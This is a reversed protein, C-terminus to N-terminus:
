QASHGTAAVDEEDSEEENDEGGPFTIQWRDILDKIADSVWTGSNGEAIDKTGYTHIACIFVRGDPLIKLVPSGSHGGYTNIMYFLQRETLRFGNGRMEYMDHGNLLILESKDLDPGTRHMLAPYGIIRLLQDELAGKEFVKYPLFGTTAGLPADLVILGIDYGKYEPDPKQVYGPHVVYSVAEAEHFIKDGSRGPYIRVTTPGTQYKRFFLNHGATLVHWDGIMVGSGLFTRLVEGDEDCLDMELKVIKPYFGEQTDIIKEHPADIVYAETLLDGTEEDSSRSHVHGQAHSSSVLLVQRVTDAGLREPASYGRRRGPRLHTSFGLVGDADHQLELIRGKHLPKEQKRDLAVPTHKREKKLSPSAKFLVFEKQVKAPKNRQQLLSPDIEAQSHDGYYYLGTLPDRMIRVPKSSTESTAKDRESTTGFSLTVLLCLCLINKFHIAIM